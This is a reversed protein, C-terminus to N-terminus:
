DGHLHYYVATGRIRGAGHKRRPMLQSLPGGESAAPLRTDRQVTVFRRCCRCPVLRQAAHRWGLRPAPSASRTAPSVGPETGLERRHGIVQGARRAQAGNEFAARGARAEPTSLGAWTHRKGRSGVAAAPKVGLAACPM